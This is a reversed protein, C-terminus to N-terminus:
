APSREVLHIDAAVAFASVQAAARLVDSMLTGRGPGCEILRFPRPQGMAQWTVACWLGIMEGFVQSIEPATIFDGDAGFVDGRAYYTNSVAAMYEAVTIPGDRRIRAALRQSLNGESVATDSM